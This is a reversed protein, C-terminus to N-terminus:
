WWRYRDEADDVPHYWNPLGGLVGPNLRYNVFLEEAHLPRMAILVIGRIIRANEDDFNRWPLMKTIADEDQPVEWEVPAVMVNPSIGKPPHNIMHGVAYKNRKSEISFWQRDLLSVGSLIHNIQKNYECIMGRGFLTWARSDLICGDYRSIMLDSEVGFNPYGPIHKVEAAKYALGPFLAVLEGVGANGGLWVGKGAGKVQSTKLTLNFDGDPVDSVCGRPVTADNTWSMLKMQSIINKSVKNRLENLQLHAAEEGLVWPADPEGTWDGKSIRRHYELALYLRHLDTEEQFLKPNTKTLIGGRFPVLRRLWSM